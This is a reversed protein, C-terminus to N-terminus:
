DESDKGQSKIKCCSIPSLRRFSHLGIFWGQHEEGAEKAILSDPFLLYRSKGAEDIRDAHLPTWLMIGDKGHSLRHQALRRLLERQCPM